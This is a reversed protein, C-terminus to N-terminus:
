IEQLFNANKLSIEGYIFGFMDISIDDNVM